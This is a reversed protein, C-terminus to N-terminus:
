WPCMVTSSMVKGLDPLGPKSHTLSATLSGINFSPIQVVGPLQIGGGIGAGGAVAELAAGSLEEDKGASSAALGSKLKQVDEDPMKTQALIEPRLYYYNGGGDTIVLGNPQQNQESMRGRGIKSPVVFCYYEKSLQYAVSSDLNM